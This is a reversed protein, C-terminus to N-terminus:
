NVLGEDFSNENIKVYNNDLILKGKKIKSFNINNNFVVNNLEALPEKFYNKKNYFVIGYKNSTVSSDKINLKSGDKVAMGIFNEKFNSNMIYVDSNEGISLGKDFSSQIQLNNLNAFTNSFDIGDNKCFNVLLKDIIVESFDFDICDSIENNLIKSNFIKVNSNVFNISDEAILNDFIANELYVDSEIFSIAGTLFKSKYQNKNLNLNSFKINKLEVKSKNFSISSSYDQSNVNIPNDKDGIAIFNTNVELHSKNLIQINLKKKIEIDFDNIKYSDSIKIDGKIIIKNNQISLFDKFNNIFDYDNFSNSIKINAYPEVFLPKTYYYIETGLIQYKILINDININNIQKILLKKTENPQLIIENDPRWIVEGNEKVLSVIKFFVSSRINEFKLNNIKNTEAYVRINDEAALINRILKAREIINNKADDFYNIDRKALVSKLIKEQRLFFIENHNFFNNINNENSFKNLYYFYSSFFEKSAFIKKLYSHSKRENKDNIGGNFSFLYKAVEINNFSHLDFDIPEFLETLPNFYWKIEDFALEESSIIDKSAVYKAFIDIDFVNHVDIKNNLLKNFKNIAMSQQVFFKDNNKKIMSSIILNKDHDYEKTNLFLYRNEANKKEFEL